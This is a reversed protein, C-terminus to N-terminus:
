TKEPDPIDASPQPSPSPTGEDAKILGHQILQARNDPDSLFSELNLPNNDMQKRLQIPLQHFLETAENVLRHADELPIALTNDVYKALARNPENLLGTKQYQKMINNIDSAKKYSQDTILPESCDISIRTRLQSDSITKM